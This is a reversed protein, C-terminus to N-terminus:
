RAPPGRASRTPVSASGPALARHPAVRALHRVAGPLVPPAALVALPLQMAAASPRVAVVLVAPRAAAVAPLAPHRDLAALHDAAGHGVLAVRADLEAAHAPAAGAVALLCAVAFAWIARMVVVYCAARVTVVADSALVGRAHASAVSARTGSARRRAEHRDLHTITARLM